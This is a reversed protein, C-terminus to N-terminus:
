APPDNLHKVANLGANLGFIILMTAIPSFAGTADAVAAVAAPDALIAVIGGAAGVLGMGKLGKWLSKTISM